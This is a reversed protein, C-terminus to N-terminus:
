LRGGTETRPQVLHADPGTRSAGSTRTLSVVRWRLWPRRIAHFAGAAMARTTQAGVSRPRRVIARLAEIGRRQRFEAHVLEHLARYFEATYAARYMMALDDSDVWNRKAGLQQKVREFFTTGPLPYSVSVGIDDPRCERVMALTREIDDFSEGPYGFQLFFGVAIGAARLRRTATRIDDVGIGKEMADLVRQSGSEAGIWVTRCGAAALASAVGDTVGDARLLCKFPVIADRAILQRAFEEIWGPKLGFIDDTIWLHDPRYTDKLWAIEDAVQTPGRSSYRQGYIPKACWNCHFPCGRTTAINMSFYGHRRRWVERYREVDVLDWAPRPLVDLDRVFPRPATKRLAGAADRFVLGEIESVPTTSWGCLSDVLETLTIEGEGTIIVRAGADLYSEPHDSADSGAVVVSIHRRRAAAIMQRAAERMRSLCMKSLYNFSDEFLVAIRPRHRDLAVEWERVSNALMADFLAVTWGRERVAAAAYLTGLPAYPQQATWLKPDFRLFYAQGFLVDVSM